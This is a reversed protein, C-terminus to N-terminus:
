YVDEFDIEDIDLEYGENAVITTENTTIVEDDPM